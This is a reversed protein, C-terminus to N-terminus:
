VAPVKGSSSNGLAMVLKRLRQQKRRSRRSATVPTIFSRRRLCCFCVVCVITLLSLIAVPSPSIETDQVDIIPNAANNWDAPPLAGFSHKQGGGNSMAARLDLELPGKPLVSLLKQSKYLNSNFFNPSIFALGLKM